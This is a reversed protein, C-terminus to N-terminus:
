LPMRRNGAVAHSEQQDIDASWLCHQVERFNGFFYGGFYGFIDDNVVGSDNIAGGQPVGAFIRM